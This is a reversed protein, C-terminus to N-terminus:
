KKLKIIIFFILLFIEGLVFAIAVGLVEFVSTLIFIGSVHTIIRVIGGSMVIRSRESGLFKSVFIQNIAIPTIAFSLIKIIQPSTSFNPFLYNLILESLFIGILSLGISLIILIQVLKTHSQGSSFEPLLYQQVSASVVTSLMLFQLSLSYNGLFTFGFIPGIILKDIHKDFGGLIGHVYNHMMFRFKKKIKSVDFHSESFGVRLRYAFPLYSLAMGLIIGSNGFLQYFGLALVVLLGRQLIVYFFFTRYSKRGLLDAKGLSFLALFVIYLSVEFKNLLVYLILSITVTSIISLLYM